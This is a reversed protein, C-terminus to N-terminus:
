EERIKIERRALYSLNGIEGNREERNRKFWDFALLSSTGRTKKTPLPNRSITTIIYNFHLSCKQSTIGWGREVPQYEPTRSSLM